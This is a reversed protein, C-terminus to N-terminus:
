VSSGFGAPENVIAVIVTSANPLIVSAAFPPPPASVCNSIIPSEPPGTVITSPLVTVNVPGGSILVTPMFESIM